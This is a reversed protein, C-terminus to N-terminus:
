RTYIIYIDFSYESFENSVKLITIESKMNEILENGFSKRNLASISSETIESDDDSEADDALRVDIDSLKKVIFSTSLIFCRGLYGM